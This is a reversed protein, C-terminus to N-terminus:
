EPPEIYERCFAEYACNDASCKIDYRYYMGLALVNKVILLVLLLVTALAAWRRAGKDAPSGAVLRATEAVGLGALLQHIPYSFILYRPHFFRGYTSLLLYGFPLLYFMLLLWAAARNRRLIGVWGIAALIGYLALSDWKGCGWHSLTALILRWPFGRNQTGDGVAHFQDPSFAMALTRPLWPLFLLLALAGAGGFLLLDKGGVRRTERNEEQYSSRTAVILALGAAHIVGVMVAPYHLYGLGALSVAYLPLWRRRGALFIEVFLLTALLALFAVAMYPRNERSYYVGYFSFAALLAPLWARAPDALRRAMLYVLISLLAGLLASLSRLCLRGTATFMAAAPDPIAWGVWKNLLHYGPPEVPLLDTRVQRAERILQGAPLYQGTASLVEDGWLEGEGLEAFRFFAALLFIPLLRRVIPRTPIM